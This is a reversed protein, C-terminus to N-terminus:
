GKTRDRYKAFRVKSKQNNGSRSGTDDDGLRSMWASSAVGSGECRRPPPPPPTRVRYLLGHRRHGRHAGGAPEERHQLLRRRLQLQMREGAEVGDDVEEPGLDGGADGGHSGGGAQRRPEESGRPM